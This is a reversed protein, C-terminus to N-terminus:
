RCKKIVSLVLVPGLTQRRTVEYILKCDPRPDVVRVPNWVGLYYDINTPSTQPSFKSFYPKYSELPQAFYSLNGIHRTGDLWTAASKASLGWYDTEFGLPKITHAIENRYIYEYPFLKWEDIFTLSMFVLLIGILVNRLKKTLKLLCSLAHLAAAMFLGWFFFLQRADDYLNLRAYFVYFLCLALYINLLFPLDLSSKVFNHKYHIHCKVINSWKLCKVTRLIRMLTMIQYTLLIFLLWLPAQSLSVLFFYTRPPPSKMVSGWSLMAGSWPFSSSQSLSKELWAIGDIRFTSNTFYILTLSFLWSFVVIKRKLILDRSSHSLFLYAILWLGIPAVILFSGPRVGLTLIIALFSWAAIQAYKMRIKRDTVVIAILALMCCIGSFSPLDKENMWGQGVVLPTLLCFGIVYASKIGLILESWSCLAIIGIILTLSVFVNRYAIWDATNFSISLGLSRFIYYPIREFYGYTFSYSHLIGYLADSKHLHPHSLWHLNLNSFADDTQYDWHPGTQIPGVAMFSGLVGLVIFKFKKSNVIKKLSKLPISGM